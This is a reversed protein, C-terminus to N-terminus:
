KTNIPCESIKSVLSTINNSISNFFKDDKNILRDINIKIFINIAKVLDSYLVTRFKSGLSRKFDTSIITHKKMM